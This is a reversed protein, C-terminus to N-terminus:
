LSKSSVIIFPGFRDLFILWSCFVGSVLLLARILGPLTGKPEWSFIVAAEWFFVDLIEEM